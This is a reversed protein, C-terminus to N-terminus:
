PFRYVKFGGKTSDLVLKPALLHLPVPNPEVDFGFYFGHLAGLHWRLPSPLLSRHRIPLLCPFAMSKAPPIHRPGLLLGSSLRKAPRWLDKKGWGAVSGHVQAASYPQPKQCSTETANPRYCTSKRDCWDCENGASLKGVLSMTDTGKLRLTM